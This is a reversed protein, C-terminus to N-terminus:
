PHCVVGLFAHDHDYSGNKGRSAISARYISDDHAQRDMQGDKVLPCQVLVALHLIVCVGGYSLHHGKAQIERYGLSELKRNGLIEAM